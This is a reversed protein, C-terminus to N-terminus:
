FKKEIAPLDANLGPLLSVVKKENKGLYKENKM